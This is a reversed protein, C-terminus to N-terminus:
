RTGVREALEELIDAARKAAGPRAFTRAERGLRELEEPNEALDAIERFFRKGDFEKDLALRAAGARQLAEANRLQHEDAAFPFPVMISPKGAAAVEAVAGAGSRCVIVDAAGFARPMDDIFRVVEGELGAERFARDCEAWASEGTQHVFRVPLGSERFLPWAEMAARNLSRSGRSGGTILVTLTTERRKPELAFFEPRVPLGSVESRGAPFYEAAEPFSVLARSVFRGIKRNTIGPMANPEMVVVPVRSLLAALVVPGAAYGGMSFVAGPRKRRIFGLMHVIGLPLEWLTRLTRTLGVRKLGGIRIWEIPFGAEPALKAEIGSKTGAFVPEHGRARLERAVAILPIVHGGTGGGAMLFVAGGTM